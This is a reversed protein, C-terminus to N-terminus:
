TEQGCPVRIRGLIRAFVDRSLAWAILAALAALVLLNGRFWQGAGAETLATLVLTHLLYVPLTNRGVKELLPLPRRPTWVLLVFIWALAVAWM